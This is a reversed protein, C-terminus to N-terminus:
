SGAFEWADTLLEELDTLQVNGLSVIMLPHNLYHNTIYYCAPDAQMLVERRQPEIKVVVADGQPLMRAFLKKRVYFAPTGYCTKESTHDMALALSRVNDVTFM